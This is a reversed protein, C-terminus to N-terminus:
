KSVRVPTVLTEPAVAVKQFLPYGEAAFGEPDTPEFGAYFRDLGFSVLDVETWEAVIKEYNRKLVTSKPDLGSILILGTPRCSLATIKLDPRYQRLIPIMKWVDGTWPGRPLNKLDRTLMRENFPLCDHLAIVGDPDSNAETNLFDRLLFEFLHLGDLFSYSLKIKAAKLFGSEFFADSTEQFVLLRPKTGIVDTEVKFFPDVAITKGRVPAFTRGSRCGVEMYWDFAHTQHLGDLFDGYRQGTNRRFGPRAAVANDM